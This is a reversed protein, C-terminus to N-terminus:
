PGTMKAWTVLLGVGGGLVAGVLPRSAIKFAGILGGVLMGTGPLFIEAQQQLESAGVHAQTEVRRLATASTARM